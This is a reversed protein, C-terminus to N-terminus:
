RLNRLMDRYMKLRSAFGKLHGMKEEKMVHTCNDLIVHKVRLNKKKAYKTLATEVGFRSLDLEPLAELIERKVARQGSLWPAIKQALDTSFRGHSFIGLTMDAEDEVVSELLDSVHSRTLGILDADLLLIIDADTEHIGAVIAGGKGRNTDLDIVKAGAERAVRSTNDTSGDNVVVVEAIEPIGCVVSVVDGVTKEENYAPIIATIKM